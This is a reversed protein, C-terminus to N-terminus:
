VEGGVIDITHGDELTVIAKKWDSRLGSTRLVRGNSRITMNKRKGKVNLTAVKQVKVNFRDEVAKGIELKNAEKAVKFIYKRLSSGMSNSKESLIPALIVSKSEM